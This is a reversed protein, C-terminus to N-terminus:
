NGWVKREGYSEQRHVAWPGPRYDGGRQSSNELQSDLYWILELGRSQSLSLLCRGCCWLKRPKSRNRKANWRKSGSKFCCSIPPWVFLDCCFLQIKFVQWSRGALSCCATAAEQEGGVSFVSQCSLGLNGVMPIGWLLIKLFRSPCQSLPQCSSSPQCGVVAMLIGATEDFTLGIMFCSLISIPLSKAYRSSRAHNHQLKGHIEQVTIKSEALLFTWVLPM